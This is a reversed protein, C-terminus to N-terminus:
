GDNAALSKRSLACLKYASLPYVSLLMCPMASTQQAVGLFPFHYARNQHTAAHNLPTAPLEYTTQISSFIALTIIFNSVRRYNLNSVYFHKEHQGTKAPSALNFVGIVVIAQLNRM